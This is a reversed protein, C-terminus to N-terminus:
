NKDNHNYVPTPTEFPLHLRGKNKSLHEELSKGCNYCEPRGKEFLLKVIDLHGYRCAYYLGHHKYDAGKEIMLEVIDIHGNRSADELGLTWSKAGKEIMFKVIDMHGGKCAGWMGVNWYLDMKMMKRIEIVDNYQCYKELLKSNIDKSYHISQSLIVEFRKDDELKIYNKCIENLKKSTKCLCIISNEDIFELLQYMVYTDKFPKM